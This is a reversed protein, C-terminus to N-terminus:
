WAEAVRFFDYTAPLSMEPDVPLGKKFLEFHLHPGTASGTEGALGILQGKKVVEGERVMLSMLHSYTTTVEIDHQLEVHKGYGGHWGSFVVTGSYPAYVAQAADAMLDVGRHYRNDGYVPHLRLGFHSTIVVPAVPWAFRKWNVPKLPHRMTNVAVLKERVTGILGQARSAVAPPFDGWLAADAELEAELVVRARVLDYPSMTATATTLFTEVGGLAANWAEVQQAPMAAGKKAGGRGARVLNGFRILEGQLEPNPVAEAPVELAAKKKAPRPAKQSIIAQEFPIREVQTTACSLGLLAPLIARRL